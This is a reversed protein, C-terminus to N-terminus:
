LHTKRKLFSLYCFSLARVSSQQRYAKESGLELMSTYLMLKCKRRPLQSRPIHTPSYFLSSQLSFVQGRTKSVLFTTQGMKEYIFIISKSM